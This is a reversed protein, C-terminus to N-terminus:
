GNYQLTEVISTRAAYVGPAISSVLGILLALFVTLAAVLPSLSLGRVVSVFGPASRM